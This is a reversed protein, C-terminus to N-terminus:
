WVGQYHHQNGHTWHGWDGPKDIAQRTDVLSRDPLASPRHGTRTWAPCAKWTGTFGADKLGADNRKPPTSDRPRRVSTGINEKERPHSFVRKQKTQIDSILPLTSFVIVTRKLYISLAQTIHASKEPKPIPFHKGLHHTKRVHTILKCYFGGM